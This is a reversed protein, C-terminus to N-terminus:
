GRIDIDFVSTWYQHQALIEVRLCFDVEDEGEDKVGGLIRTTNGEPREARGSINWSTVWSAM